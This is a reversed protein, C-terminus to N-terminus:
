LASRRMFMTTSGDFTSHLSRGSSQLPVGLLVSLPLTWSEYQAAMILFVIFFSLGFVVAPPVGQAAKVEQYSM